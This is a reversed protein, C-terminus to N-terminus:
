RSIYPLTQNFPVEFDQIYNDFDLGNAFDLL